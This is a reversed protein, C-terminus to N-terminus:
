FQTVLIDKEMDAINVIKILKKEITVFANKKLDKKFYDIIKEM